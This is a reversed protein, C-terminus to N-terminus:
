IEMINADDPVTMEEDVERVFCHVSHDPPQAEMYLEVQEKTTAHFFMSYWGHMAESDLDSRFTNTTCVIVEWYRKEAYKILHSVGAKTPWEGQIQGCVLCWSFNMYNKAAGEERLGLLEHPPVYGKQEKGGPWRVGFLHDTKGTCSAM